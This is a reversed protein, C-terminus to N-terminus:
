CRSREAGGWGVGGWVGVWVVGGVGVGYWGSWVVWEVGGVCGVVGGGGLSTHSMLFPCSSISLQHSVIIM